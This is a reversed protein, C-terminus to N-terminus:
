DEKLLNNIISALENPQFSAICHEANKFPIITVHNNKKLHEFVKKNDEPPIKGDREGYILIYQNNHTKIDNICVDEDCEIERKSLVERRDYFTNIMVYKEVHVRESLFAAMVAGISWGIVIEKSPVSTSFAEIIDQLNNKFTKCRDYAFYRIHDINLLPLINDNFQKFSGDIGSIVNIGLGDM